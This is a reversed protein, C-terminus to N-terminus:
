SSRCWNRVVFTQILSTPLSKPHFQTVKQLTWIDLEDDQSHWYSEWLYSIYNELDSHMNCSEYIRACIYNCRRINTTISCLKLIDNVVINTWLEISGVGLGWTVYLTSKDDTTRTTTTFHNNLTLDPQNCCCRWHECQGLFVRAVRCWRTCHTLICILTSGIFSTWAWCWM